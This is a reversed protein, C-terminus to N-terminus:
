IEISFAHSVWAQFPNDDIFEAAVEGGWMCFFFVFFLGGYSVYYTAEHAKQSGEWCGLIRLLIWFSETTQNKKECSM